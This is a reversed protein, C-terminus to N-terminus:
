QCDPCLGEAQIRVARVAFGQAGELQSADLSLGHLDRVKKCNTCVLHHHLGVNPDFRSSGTGLDLQRIEGMRALDNLTQYVTKLSMMPIERLAAAHIAEANPHAENGQLVRFICERQRTVKRGEARLREVLQAPTRM